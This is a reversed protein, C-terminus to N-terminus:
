RGKLGGGSTYCQYNCANSQLVTEEKLGEGGNRKTDTRAEM